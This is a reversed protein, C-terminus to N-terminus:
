LELIILLVISPMEAISILIEGKVIDITTNSFLEVIQVIYSLHTNAHINILIINYIHM